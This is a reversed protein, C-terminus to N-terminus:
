RRGVEEAEELERLAEAANANSPDLRLSERYNMTALPKDGADLYAEALSDYANASRPHDDVNLQLIRIADPLRDSHILEYGLGNLQGESIGPTSANGADFSRYQKVAADVGRSAVTVSLAEEPSARNAAAQAIAPVSIGFAVGGAGAAMAIALVVLGAAM